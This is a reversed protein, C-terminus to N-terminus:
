AVINKPSAGDRMLAPGAATYTACTAGVKQKHGTTPQATFITNDWTLGCAVWGDAHPGDDATCHKQHQVVRWWKGSARAGRPKM